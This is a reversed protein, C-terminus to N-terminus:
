PGRCPRDGDRLRELVPASPIMQAEVPLVAAEAAAYAARAPRLATTSQGAPAIAAAFSACDRATPARTSSTRPLKSSASARSGRARALAAVEREDVREVGVPDLALLGRRELDVLLEAPRGVHQREGVAAAAVGDGVGLAEVLVADRRAEHRPAPPALARRREGRRDPDRSGACRASTSASTASPM